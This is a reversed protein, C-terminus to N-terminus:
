ICKVWCAIHDIGILPVGELCGIFVGIIPINADEHFGKEADGEQLCKRVCDRWSGRGAHKCIVQAIACYYAKLCPSWWSTKSCTREYYSCDAAGPVPPNM